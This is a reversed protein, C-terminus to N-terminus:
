QVRVRVVVYNNYAGAVHSWSWVVVDYTGSPLTQTVFFGSNTFDPRGWWAAVDPRPHGYSAAGFWIPSQYAGGVIPYAWAHIAGVGSGSTSALDISWGFVTFTNGVTQSWVPADIVMRPNTAAVVRVRATRVATFTGSVVSHAYAAIDYWGPALLGTLTFGSNIFRQQGYAQAVDARAMVAAAGLFYAGGGNVPWAYIHVADVGSDTGGNLDLAWGSVTVRDVATSGNLPADLSMRTDPVTGGGGGLGSIFAAGSSAGLNYTVVWHPGAANAITSPRYELVKTDWPTIQVANTLNRPYGDSGLEFSYLDAGAGWKTVVLSTKTHPNYSLSPEGPFVMFSKTLDLPGMAGNTGVVRFDLAGTGPARRYWVMNFQGTHGNYVVHPTDMFETHDDPYFVDTIPQLSQGNFLRSWIGGRGGFPMGAAFGAAMCVSGDTNCAVSPGGQYDGGNGMNTVLTAVGALDFTSFVPQAFGSGVMSGPVRTPVAFRQGTWAPRARDAAFWEGGVNPWILTRASVAPAQGPRYRVLRGYKPISTGEVPVLYTILFTPDQATGGFTVTGWSPAEGNSAFENTIDFMGGIPNGNGDVFLGKVGIRRAPSGDALLLYVNNVSDYASDWRSAWGLPLVKTRSIQAAASAASSLILCLAIVPVRVRISQTM